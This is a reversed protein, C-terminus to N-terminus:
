PFCPDEPEPLIIIQPKILIMPAKENRVLKPFPSSAAHTSSKGGLHEIIEEIRHRVEPDDSRTYRQLLPVIARGMKKLADTAAQRDKYSEASLRAVLKEVQKRMQGPPLAQPRVLSAIQGVYIKLMPGPVIRFTLEERVVQGRYVSGNWMELRARGLHTPSFSMAKIGSPAPSVAGIESRLEIVDEMLSGFLEDGNTLVAHTLTADPEDEVAFVLQVIMDRAVDLRSGLKLPLSIKEPELFGGLHSGNRFTVRHVGHAPNDLSISLLDKGNLSLRGHRTRLMLKVKGPEFALRDGTRLIAVPGRFPVDEPRDKSLRYSWQEVRDFPVRLTARDPTKLEIKAEPLRGCVVQGDALLVRIGEDPGGGLAMGVAQAAPIDLRGFFTEVGFTENTIKGYLPDGGKLLVTDFAESRDLDLGEIGGSAKFNVIMRRVDRPLDKLLLYPKFRKITKLHAAASHGQSEFYCLIVTKKAPITLNWRVYIQNSQIQINPRLKSRKDAVVHLLAPTNRGGVMTETIFAWGDTISTKPMIPWNTNTYISVQITIDSGTPNEFIDLWRALPRDKYVKIRRCIKLNSRSYPGIEIEDGSQNAWGYGSSRVNSGGVQCYLGGSYAYNTGQGVSGYHQINWRFGGGDTMNHDFSVRRNHPIHLASKSVKGPPVPMPWPPGGARLRLEGAAPLVAIVCICFFVKHLGARV